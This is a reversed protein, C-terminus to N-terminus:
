ATLAERLHQEAEPSLSTKLVSGGYPALADITREPTGSQFLIVVAARGQRVLSAVQQRFEDRIGLDSMSGFLAGMAGGAVTGGIPVFFLVGLVLGWLAGSAAGAGIAHTPTAVRLEGGDDHVVVASGATHIVLDRELGRLVSMVEEAEAETSYGIVVLEAM